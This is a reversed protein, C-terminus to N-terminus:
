AEGRTAPESKWPTWVDRKERPCVDLGREPTLATCTTIYYLPSLPTSLWRGVDKLNQGWSTRTQQSSTSPCVSLPPWGSIEMLESTKGIVGSQPPCAAPPLFGPSVHEFAPFWLNSPIFLNCCTLFSSSSLYKLDFVRLLPFFFLYLVVRLHLLRSLIQFGDCWVDAPSGKWSLPLGSQTTPPIHQCFLLASLLNTSKHKFLVSAVSLLHNVNLWWTM